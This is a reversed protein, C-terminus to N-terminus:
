DLSKENKIRRFQKKIREILVKQSANTNVDPRTPICMIEPFNLATFLSNRFHVMDNREMHKEIWRNKM